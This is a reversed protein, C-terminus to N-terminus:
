KLWNTDEGIKGPAPNGPLDLVYVRMNGKGSCSATLTGDTVVKVDGTVADKYTGNPISSFTAGGSITILAFSDVGNSDDTFRKKYAMNGSCNTNSYEGKQLAPIARRIRNLRALDKALPNSLTNAMEGTANSYQGFDQVSVSGELHDGYYARGTDALATTSPDPDVDVGAQFEIESGYFVCPIGRFTFMLAWNEAWADAGGAYRQHSTSPGYDHSDVYVVNWTSDNYYIDDGRKNYASGADSFNVHMNCDIVSMGSAQSYDKTRYNNGDLLYNNSTPQNGVGQENEYNYGEEAALHDDASYTTREKWTYFPASLPAVGKNWVEYVKTLVEGFMFFNDGGRQKFAPIFHRNFMVRSVHKATDIRFADVGMDIYRNYANILYQQAVSSETDIDICDEHIAGTQCTYDEWNKLFGRHFYDPNYINAVALETPWQFNYIKYGEPSTYQTQTGWASVDNDWPLTPANKQWLDGNYFNKGSIPEYDVGNYTFNPNEVDYYDIATGDGWEPDNSDGWFRVPAVDYLGYRCSHNLVIDQIIRIGRAHAEDILRQYDYGDSLLRGDIRNMDWAHYGHYDYDSRNLVPPTIWIATFGLAKIYDLKEILGKFDGRWAPDNNTRNGNKDALRTYRNNSSDGDYFRTPLLFYISEERFDGRELQNGIHYYYSATTEHGAGDLILFRYTTTETTNISSGTLGGSADGSVYVTSSTTPVTGDTTYYATTTASKNDNIVFSVNVPNDYQGTAINNTMTPPELDADPDIIFSFTYISGIDGLTNKGFAKITTSNNISLPVSYVTSFETPTSNDLTYYIIDGSGNTSSLTVTQSALYTAPDPSVSIVPIQPGDPNGNHWSGDYWGESTRSLDATQGSGNNNFVINASTQGTITYTYWGSGEDTMAEGPWTTSLNDPLTNWYHIHTYNKAHVILGNPAVTTTTTSVTTSTTTTTVPTTVFILRISFDNINYTSNLKIFYRGANVTFERSNGTGTLAVETSLDNKYITIQGELNDLWDISYKGYETIEFGFWNVGATLNYDSYDEGTILVEATTFVIYNTPNDSITVIETVIQSDTYGSSVAFTKITHSGVSLTFPTSYVSSTTSPHTGDITYYITSNPTGCNISFLQDNTYTGSSPSIVPDVVKPYVISYTASAVSSLSKGSAKAVSKLIVTTGDNAINIPTSYLSSSENPESGDVTYYIIGGDSNTIEVSIDTSYTGSSYNFSPTSTVSSNISYTREGIISNTVGNKTAMAKLTISEGQNITIPSSYTLSPVTGDTSYLITAGTTDCDLTINIPSSYTGSIYNFKVPTVVNQTTFPCTETLLSGSAITKTYNATLYTIYSSLPSYDTPSVDKAQGIININWEGEALSSFFLSSEFNNVEQTVSAFGPKSATVIIKEIAGPNGTNVNYDSLNEVLVRMNGARKLLGIKVSSGSETVNASATGQYILNNNEDKGEVNIQWTGIKLLMSISNTATTAQVPTEGSKTATVYYTSVTWGRTQPIEVSLIGYGSKSKLNTQTQDNFPDLAVACSFSIILLLISLLLLITFLKKAKKLNM